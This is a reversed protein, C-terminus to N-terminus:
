KQIGILRSFRARVHKGTFAVAHVDYRMGLAVQAGAGADRHVHADVGGARIRCGHHHRHLVGHVAVVLENWGQVVQPQAAVVVQCGVFQVPFRHDGVFQAVANSQGVGVQGRFGSLRRLIPVVGLGGVARVVSVIEVCARVRDQSGGVVDATVVDVHVPEKGPYVIREADRGDRVDGGVGPVDGVQGHAVIEGGVGVARDGGALEAQGGGLGDHLLALEEVLDLMAERRVVYGGQGM